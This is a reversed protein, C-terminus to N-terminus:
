PAALNRACEDPKRQGIESRKQDPLHWGLGLTCRGHGGENDFHDCIRSDAGMRQNWCHDGEAVVVPVLITKYSSM